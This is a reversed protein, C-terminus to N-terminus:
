FGLTLTTLLRHFTFFINKKGNKANKQIKQFFIDMKRLFYGELVLMEV